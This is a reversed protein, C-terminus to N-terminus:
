RGAEESAARARLAKGVEEAVKVPYANEDKMAAALVNVVTSIGHQYADMHGDAHHGGGYDHCGEAVNLVFEALRDREERRGAERGELRAAALAIAVAAELDGPRGWPAPAALWLRVLVEATARDKGADTPQDPM